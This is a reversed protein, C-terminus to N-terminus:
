FNYFILLRLKCILFMKLFVVDFIVWMRVLLGCKIIVEKCKWNNGM